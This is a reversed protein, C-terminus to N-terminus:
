KNEHGNVATLIDCRPIIQLQKREEKGTEKATDYRGKEFVSM